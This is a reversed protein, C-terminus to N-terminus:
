TDTIIALCSQPSITDNRNLKYYGAAFAGLVIGQTRNYNIIPIGVFKFNKTSDQAHSHISFIFIFSLKLFLIRRGDSM